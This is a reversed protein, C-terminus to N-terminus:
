SCGDKVLAPRGSKGNLGFVGGAADGVVFIDGRCAWEGTIAYDDVTASWGKKLIGKPDKTMTESM